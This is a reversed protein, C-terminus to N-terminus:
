EEYSYFPCGLADALLEPQNHPIQPIQSAELHSRLMMTM